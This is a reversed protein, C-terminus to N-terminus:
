DDIRYIVEITEDMVLNIRFFLTPYELDFRNAEAPQTAIISANQPLTIQVDVVETRIGPQKQLVLTYRRYDGFSEVLAPTSYSFQLREQQGYEVHTMGILITHDTPATDTQPEILSGSIATLQSNAPAFVQLLGFYDRNAPHERRLAPDEEAVSLSYIYKVATRSTLSGDPQIRVDYTLERQISHNPKNGSVTADAVLLYDVYDSERASEQAGSWGLTDFAEALEEDKFYVMIHKEQLAQLISQRMEASVGQDAVQWDAIIQRYLTALFAKHEGEARFDYVVERFTAPTVTAEYSGTVTVSGLGELLYEFGVLDIGIVGDVPQELNNGGDYYTAALQATYRFDAHWSGDWAAYGPQEYQIWWEPIELALPESPPRPSNRSTPNYGYDEVQGDQVMIWGYTSIYGGSPRLEDSNQSLVLYTQTGAGNLGLMNSLLGPGRQLLRNYEALQDHYRNLGDVTVLLRPSIDALDLPEIIREAADLHHAANAFSSQGLQLVDVLREGSSFESTFIEDEENDTLYFVTPELGTLMNDGAQALHEAADLSALLTELDASLFAFPRLFATQRKASRLSANLDNVSDQLREYDSLTFETSGNSNPSLEDLIRSVDEWSEEVERRANMTLVLASMAMVALVSTIMVLLVRANIRAIRKRFRRIWRFRHRSRRRRQLQTM